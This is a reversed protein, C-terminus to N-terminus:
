YQRVFILIHAIEFVPNVVPVALKFPVITILVFSLIHISEFLSISYQCYTCYLKSAVPLLSFPFPSSKEVLAFLLHKPIPLVIVQYLLLFM